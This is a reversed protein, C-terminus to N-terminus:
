DESSDVHDFKVHVLILLLSTVWGVDLLCGAWKPHFHQPCHHLFQGKQFLAGPDWSCSVPKHRTQLTNQIPFIQARDQSRHIEQPFFFDWYYCKAASVFVSQERLARLRSVIKSYLGLSLPQHRPLSWSIIAHMKSSNRGQLGGFVCSM